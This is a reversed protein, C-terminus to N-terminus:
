RCLASYASRDQAVRWWTTGCPYGEARLRARGLRQRVLRTYADDLHAGKRGARRRRGPGAMTSYLMQRAIRSSDMRALHGVWRLQRRELMDKISAARCRSLLQANSMRDARRVGLIMRLRQRHFVELYYLQAASLAWAEGGYLLVSVVMVTYVAMRVGLPICNQRFFPRELRRFAAAALQVRRSLDIDLGGGEAFMGGLYKFRDVWTLAQGAVRIEPRWVDSRAGDADVCGPCFWDELPVELLPEPLCGVHWARQCGDCLLLAKARQQSGCGECAAAETGGILMLETKDTSIVLGWRICAAEFAAVFRQLAEATPALIALDDALMLVPVQVDVVSARQTYPQELEAAM